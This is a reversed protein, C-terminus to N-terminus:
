GYIPIKIYKRLLPFPVGMVAYLDTALSEHMNEPVSKTCFKLVTQITIKLNRATTCESGNIKGLV